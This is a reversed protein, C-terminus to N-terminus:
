VAPLHITVITGGEQPQSINLGYQEGYNLRLITDVNYFGIHGKPKRDNRSNLEELKEPSIGCGDDQVEIKLDQGDRYATVLIHGDERGELGHLLANEVIPQIILKPVTCTLLEEPVKKEYCFKGLLRIEQIRVYSDALDLEEKLLIFPGGSISTRLIRALKTAMVALEEVGNAKAVWKMTDLTNYLFHPNLQSQMMAINTENLERQQGVQREIHGALEVTMTNFHRALQGLEDQRETEIRTDLKGKQVQKMADTLLRVPRTLNNSLALAVAICLAMSVVTMVLMVRYMTRITGEALTKPRLCVSILGTDGIEALYVNSNQYSTSLQEGVLLQYRLVKVIEAKEATGTCYVPNWFQNLICIGDQSGYLGSLIKEFHEERLSIVMYGVLRGEENQIMRAARLLTYPDETDKLEQRLVMKGPEAAAARLIGWYVPLEDHVVGTGTSCICQGNDGYIDFQAEDRLGETLAYLRAYVASGAESETELREMEALLKEDKCFLDTVAEFKEFQTKLAKEAKEAQVLDRRTDEKELRIRFLQILFVSSLILPLVAAVLFGCLLERKFSKRICGKM